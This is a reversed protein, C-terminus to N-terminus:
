PTFLYASSGDTLFVRGDALLTATTEYGAPGDRDGGDVRSFTGTAPDYLEVRSVTQTMQDFWGGSILVRGDKLLTANAGARFSQLSGTPAFTGSSPDYLEASSLASEHVDAGGAILVRGDNLRVAAAFARPVTMDGSVAFKGTSPAFVESSAFVVQPPPYDSSSDLGESGGTVLVRGDALLTSTQHVRASHMSGVSKFSKTTADYTEASKLETGDEGLGGVLLVRGDPLLTATLWLRLDVTRGVIATQGKPPDLLEADRANKEIGNFYTTGGALLVEGDELVTAAFKDRGIKLPPAPAFQLTAPDFTEVAAPAPSAGGYGGILLVQGSPLLVAREDGQQIPLPGLKVIRPQDNEPSRAPASPSAVVTPAATARPERTTAGSSPGASPSCSGVIVLAAIAVALRRSASNSADLHSRREPL